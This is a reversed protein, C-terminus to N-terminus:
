RSRHVASRNCRSPSEVARESRRSGQHKPHARLCSLPAEFSEVPLSASHLSRRPLPNTPPLQTFSCRDKRNTTGEEGFCETLLEGRVKPDLGQCRGNSREIRAWRASRLSQIFPHPHTEASSLYESISASDPLFVRTSAM